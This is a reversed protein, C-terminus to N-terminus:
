EAFLGIYVGVFGGASATSLYTADQPDGVQQWNKGDTSFSFHYYPMTGKVQLWVERGPKLEKEAIAIEEAVAKDGNVASKDLVVKM